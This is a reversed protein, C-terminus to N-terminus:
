NGMTYDYFYDTHPLGKRLITFQGAVASVWQKSECCTGDDKLDWSGRRVVIEGKTPDEYFGGPHGFGFV